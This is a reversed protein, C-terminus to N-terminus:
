DLRSNQCQENLATARRRVNLKKGGVADAAALHITTNVFVFM